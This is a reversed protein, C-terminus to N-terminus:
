SSNSQDAVDCDVRTGTGAGFAGHRKLVSDKRVSAVVWSPSQRGAGFARTTMEVRLTQVGVSEFSLGVM